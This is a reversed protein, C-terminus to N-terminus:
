GHFCMRLSFGSWEMVNETVPLIKNSSGGGGGGLMWNGQYETLSGSHHCYNIKNSM